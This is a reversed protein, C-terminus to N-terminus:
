DLFTYIFSLDVYIARHPDDIDESFNHMRIDTILGLGNSIFKLLEKEEDVNMYMDEIDTYCEDFRNASARIISRQVEQLVDIRM